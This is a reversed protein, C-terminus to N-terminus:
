QFINEILIFLHSLSTPAVGNVSSVIFANSNNAEFHLKFIGGESVMYDIFSDYKTFSILTSKLRIKESYGVITSYENCKFLITKETSIIEVGM